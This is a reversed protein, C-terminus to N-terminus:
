MMWLSLSSSRRDGEERLAHISILCNKTSEITDALRGGRPPRPYFNKVLYVLGFHGIDGEERLAHISISRDHLARQQVRDGEERLAHISIGFNQRVSRPRHTARRASPTSLFLKAAIAVPSTFTARRASPTSLFQTGSGDKRRATRRGGRPPRPYFNKWTRCQPPLPPTARRASPTSLFEYGDELIAEATPRGGRPPRPYFYRTRSSFNGGSSTARRASPTSLFQAASASSSPTSPRGGRPPRPYFYCRTPFCRLRAPDGEERLAHISIKILDGLGNARLDGEERLAHISIQQFLPSRWLACPRGGRPPRPYFHVRAEVDTAAIPRGGRPPRPYFYNGRSLREM